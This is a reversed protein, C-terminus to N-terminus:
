SLALYPTYLGQKLLNTKKLKFLHTKPDSKICKPIFRKCRFSEAALIPIHFPVDALPILWLM